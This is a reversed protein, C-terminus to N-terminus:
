KKPNCNAVVSTVSTMSQNICFFFLAGLRDQSSKQSNGLRLYILGMILSLFLTQGLTARALLPNRASEVFNRKALNFFQSIYGQAYKGERSVEEKSPLAVTIVSAKTHERCIESKQYAEVLQDVRKKSEPFLPDIHILKV